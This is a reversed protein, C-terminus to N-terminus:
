RPLGPKRHVDGYSVVVIVIVLGHGVKIIDLVFSLHKRRREVSSRNYFM